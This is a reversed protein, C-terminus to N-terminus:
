ILAALLIQLSKFDGLKEQTHITVGWVTNVSMPDSIYKGSPGLYSQYHTLHHKITTEGKENKTDHEQCSLPHISINQLKKVINIPLIFSFSCKIDKSLLDKIKLVNKQVSKHNGRSTFYSIDLIREYDTIPLLPCTV